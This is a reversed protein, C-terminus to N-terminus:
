LVYVEPATSPTTSQRGPTTSQRGTGWTLTLSLDETARITTSEGNYQAVAENLAYEQDQIYTMMAEEAKRTRETHVDTMRLMETKMEAISRDCQQQLRAVQQEVESRVTDVREEAIQCERLM